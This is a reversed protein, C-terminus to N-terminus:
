NNNPSNEPEKSTEPPKKTNNARKARKGFWSSKPKSKEPERSLITKKEEETTTKVERIHYHQLFQAITEPPKDIAHLTRLVKGFKGRKVKGVVYIDVRTYFYNFKGIQHYEPAHKIFRIIKEKSKGDIITTILKIEEPNKLIEKIQKQSIYDPSDEPIKLVNFYNVGKIPKDPNNHNFEKRFEPTSAVIRSYGGIIIYSQGKDPNEARQEYGWEIQEIGKKDHERIKTQLQNITRQRFECLVELGSVYKELEKIESKRSFRM